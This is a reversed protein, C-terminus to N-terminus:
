SNISSRPVYEEILKLNEGLYLCTLSLMPGDSVYLFPTQTWVNYGSLWRSTSKAITIKDTTYRDLWKLFNMRNELKMKTKIHIKYQYKGYPLRDCAIKRAQHNLLFEKEKDSGPEYVELIFEGLVEILEQSLLSDNCFISCFNGEKRLQLDRDAFRSFLQKFEAIKRNVNSNNYTTWDRIVGNAM